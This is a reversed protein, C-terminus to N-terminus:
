EKLFKKLIKQTYFIITKAYVADFQKGYYLIGNRFYRLQDLLLLESESFGIHKAYSVEAEHAGKGVSSFGEELMKARLLLM